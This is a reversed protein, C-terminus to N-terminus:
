RLTVCSMKKEWINPRKPTGGVVWQCFSEARSSWGVNQLRGGCRSTVVRSAQRLRRRVRGTDIQLTVALVARLMAIIPDSKVPKCRADAMERNAFSGWADGTFILHTSLM